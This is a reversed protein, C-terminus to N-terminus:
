VHFCRRLPRTLFHFVCSDVFDDADNQEGPYAFDSQDTHWCHDIEGARTVIRFHDLDARLFEFERRTLDRELFALWDDQPQAAGVAHVAEHRLREFDIGVDRGVLRLVDGDRRVGGAVERHDAIVVAAGAVAVHLHFDRDDLLPGTLHKRLQDARIMQMWDDIVERDRQQGEPDGRFDQGGRRDQEKAVRRM